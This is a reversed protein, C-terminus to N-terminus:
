RGYAEKTRGDASPSSRDRLPVEAQALKRRLKHLDLAEDYTVHIIANVGARRLMADRELQATVVDAIHRHNTMTPDVYKRMGDYELVVTQGRPTHWVFDVRAKNAPNNPDIFERQLQPLAYGASIIGARCLSEGGNESLPNACQMLYRLQDRGYRMRSCHANVEDAHTLRTRLASDAIALAPAFNLMMCCDRLTRAATTVYLTISRTLREYLMRTSAYAAYAGSREVSFKMPPITRRQRDIDRMFVRRTGSRRTSTGCFTDAITVSPKGICMWPLELEHIAAASTAAFTWHPYRMALSLILHM